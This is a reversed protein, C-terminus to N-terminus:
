ARSETLLQYPKPKMSLGYMPTLDLQIGPRKKLKLKQLVATIFIFLENRAVDEGLCKRIGMGFILVKDVLNKNLQEDDNLFREPKFLDPNDWVTEDHNVQYMNIFICTKKPIFYGSLTTDVTTCHPITLPIFSAHRFVETIFAETYPLFKRDEFRPLRLGIKAGIEEQIKVQIEPYQILYLFSWYLCTSVTEFGAGFIDNVTSIVEDDNLTAKKSSYKNQCTSILADTIDRIHDKDYTTCHDRVHLAIFQNLARYFKRPGNVIPLPLYCFCPIFDAPNAASSAKLIDDNTKVIRLFEEDSHDYRKGFCLACVINAIACTVANRPDFSGNESTLKEFINILESVEELVHEELLCSSSSSKAEAKSFTRLASSAIKKQLKWSEGYNVSFSLSKGEALFSFTHMNPRGAFKEGDKLLVQKVMEMGNVVVVPVMGLKILFVDGYKKRMEMFTLYPHDGLQLLNGIIPFSRPGPPFGPKRGKSGLAKVIVFVIVFIIFSTSLDGPNVAMNFIM